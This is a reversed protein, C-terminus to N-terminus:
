KKPNSLGTNEDSFSCLIGMLNAGHNHLSSATIGESLACTCIGYEGFLKLLSVGNRILLLDTSENKITSSESSCGTDNRGFVFM